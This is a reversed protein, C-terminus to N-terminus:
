IRQFYSIQEKLIKILEQSAISRHTKLQIFCYNVEIKEDSIDLPIIEGTHVYPDVKLSMETYFGIAMGQAIIHKAAELNKSKILYNPTGHKKLINRLSNSSCIVPHKLIEKISIENHRAFTSHKGVCAISKTTFLHGSLLKSDQEDALTLGIDTKGDIVLQKITRTDEEILELEIGPYKKKFIVLARPLVSTSVGAISAISLRGKLLSHEINVTEQLEEVKNLIEQAKLIVAKGSETPLAGNKSRKFIKVGLEHELASIAHSISPQAVHLREAAASLSGTKAIEVVYMLQEIRM